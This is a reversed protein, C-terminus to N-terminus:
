PHMRIRLTLGVTPQENWLSLGFRECDARARDLIAPPVDENAFIQDAQGLLRAERITLDDPDTSSLLLDVVDSLEAAHPMALWTEVADVDHDALVDLPGGPDLAADIAKRRDAGEPWIHKIRERAAFLTKALVGLNGPIMRELRQRLAKALGASAGGTGVAILVPDRDIIAPTTYDCLASRDVANILLGRAKLSHVATVAAEDDEIAVVALAADAEEDDTLIAGAREYLRRKADAMEGTGLLIVKRGKLNVFIPLQNM